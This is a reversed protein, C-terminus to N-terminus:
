SLQSRDVDTIEVRIDVLLIEKIDELGTAIDTRDTDGTINGGTVREAVTVDVEVRHLSGVLSNGLQVTNADLIDSRATDHMLLVVAALTVAQFALDKDLTELVIDVGTSELTEHGLVTIDVRTNDLSVILTPGQSITETLELVGFVCLLCDLVFSVGLRSKTLEGRDVDEKGRVLAGRGAVLVGVNVDLAKVTIGRFFNDLTEELVTTLHSRPEKGTLVVGALVRILVSETTETEGVELIVLCGAINDLLEGLSLRDDPDLMDRLVCLSGLLVDLLM